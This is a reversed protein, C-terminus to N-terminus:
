GVADDPGALGDRLADALGNLSHRDILEPAAERFAKLLATMATVEGCVPDTNSSLKELADLLPYWWKGGVRLSRALQQFPQIAVTTLQDPHRDLYELLLLEPDSYLQTRLYRLRSIRARDDRAQEAARRTDVDLYLQVTATLRNLYGGAYDFEQGLDANLCDEAARIEEM